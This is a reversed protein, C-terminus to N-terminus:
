LAVSVSQSGCGEAQEGPASGWGGSSTSLRFLKCRAVRAAKTVFGKLAVLQGRRRQAFTRRPQDRFPNRRRRVPSPLSM